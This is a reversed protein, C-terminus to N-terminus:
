LPVHIAVSQIIIGFSLFLFIFREGIIRFRALFYGAHASVVVILGITALVVILTNLLPRFFSGYLVVTKYNDMNLPIPLINPRFSFIHHPLKLSTSVAWVLPFLALFSLVVMVLLWGIELIRKKSKYNAM